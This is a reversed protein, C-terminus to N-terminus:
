FLLPTMTPFFIFQCLEYSSSSHHLLHHLSTSHERIKEQDWSSLLTVQLLQFLSVLCQPLLHSNFLSPTCSHCQHYSSRSHPELSVVKLWHYFNCRGFLITEPYIQPSEMGMARNCYICKKVSEYSWWGGRGGYFSSAEREEQTTM